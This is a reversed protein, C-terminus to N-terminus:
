RTSVALPDSPDVVCEKVDILNATNLTVLTYVLTRFRFEFGIGNGIVMKQWKKFEPAPIGIERESKSGQYLGGRLNALIFRPVNFIEYGGTVLM